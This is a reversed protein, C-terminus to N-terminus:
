NVAIAPDAADQVGFVIQWTSYDQRCLTTLAEELLPEDSRWGM